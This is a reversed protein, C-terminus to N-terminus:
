GDKTFTQRLGVSNYIVSTDQNFAKLVERDGESSLLVIMSDGPHTHGSWKYGQTSFEAASKFDIGVHREDGRVVLRESGRTFMAFEDGTKATLAALDTMSVDDKGVVARSDYEPLKDLLAQQRNNLPKGYKYIDSPVGVGTYRNEIQSGMITLIGSEEGNQLDKKLFKERWQEFTMDGAVKVAKDEADRAFREGTEDEFWPSICGRCNPHFPPANVGVEFKSMPFHEGDFKGCLTCTASDFTELM